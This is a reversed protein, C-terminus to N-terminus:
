SCLPCVALSPVARPLSYHCPSLRSCAPRLSRAMSVASSESSVNRVASHSPGRRELASTGRRPGYPAPAVCGRARDGKTASVSPERDGPSISCRAALDRALHGKREVCLCELHHLAVNVSPGWLASAKPFGVCYVKEGHYGCFLELTLLFVLSFLYAYESTLPFM